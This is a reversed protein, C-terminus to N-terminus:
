IPYGLDMLPLSFEDALWRNPERYLDSIKASLTSPWDLSINRSLKAKLRKKATQPLLASAVGRLRLLLPSGKLAIDIGSPRTQRPAQQTMLRVSTEEDIGIFRSLKTLFFTPDAKLQEFPLVLLEDKAYHKLYSKLLAKYHVRGLPNHVRVHMYKQYAEKGFDRDVHFRMWAAQLYEEFTCYPYKVPAGKLYQVYMSELCNIQERVILIIRSDPFM